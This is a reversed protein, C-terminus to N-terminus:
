AHPAEPVKCRWEEWAAEYAAELRRTHGVEDRLPSAALRDRLGARLARLRARDLALASAIEGLQEPTSEVLEPLGAASLLSLGARSAHTEGAVTVVPVGMWLADCTTTQGNFPFSDLLIDVEGYLKFFEARPRRPFLRLREPGIGNLGFQRYLYEDSEGGLSVLLLMRSGPVARLAASWSAIVLPTLKILRHTAGFTVHGNRDAPVPGVPGFDEDPQFCWACVPLRLLRETYERPERDPPDHYADTIKYDVTELGTTGPYGCYTMQMPAPKRAMLTLRNNAFHGTLEVLVDIRDERIMREVAEDPMGLTDRWHHGMERIRRTIRDPKKVDSYLFVDFRSRDHRDLAACTFLTVPNIIFDPSVYGIRLKRGPTRDNPYHPDRPFFRRAHVDAWRRHEALLDEPTLTPDHLCFMLLDSHCARWNPRLEVTRRLARIASGLDSSEALLYTLARQAEAHGTDARVADAFASAAEAPKKLVRLLCGRRYHPSPDATMGRSAAAYEALAAEPQASDELARALNVRARPHNPDLRLAERFADAADVPLSSRALLTGLNNHFDAVLPKLELSRQLLSFAEDTEGVDYATLGLLHLASPNDPDADLVQRYAGQAEAMRGAARHSYADALMRRTWVPDASARVPRGSFPWAAAGGDGDGARPLGAEGYAQRLYKRMLFMRAPHEGFYLVFDGPTYNSLSSQIAKEPVGRVRIDAQGKALLDSIAAREGLPHNAFREHNIVQRLFRKVRESRGRILFSASNVPAPPPCDDQTSIVVDAENDTLAALSANTHM